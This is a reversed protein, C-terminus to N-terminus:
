AFHDFSSTKVVEHWPRGGLLIGPESTVRGLVDVRAPVPLAGLAARVQELLKPAAAGLLLYDDGGGVALDLATIGNRSKDAFAHLEAHLISTEFDLDAGVTGKGYTGALLRPLDRMLGDSVDMLGMPPASTKHQAAWGVALTALSAGALALPEPRLLAACAAPFVGEAARGSRELQLLGLRALGLACCGDGADTKQRPSVVFILQGAEAERRLFPVDLAGGSDTNQAARHGWVTICFGLKDGASIDGGSLPLAYRNALRAMGGFMAGLWDEDAYVGSSPCILGLSFGAPVAGAAALDSLNVALAKHGIEEPTFYSSRFHVDELFLDTSVALHGLPPIEACDDGRGLTLSAPAPPFFRNILALIQAESQLRAM